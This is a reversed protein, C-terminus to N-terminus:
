RIWRNVFYVPIISILVILLSPFSADYVAGDTEMLMFAKVALTQFNFSQFMMTLPLEKIVDVFVLVCAALITKSLLPGHIKFLTKSFGGGLSFSAWGVNKVVKEFGSGISGYSVSFFRVIYAFILVFISSTLAIGFIQNGFYLLDLMGVGLLAGPIAYGLTAFRSLNSIWRTRLGQQLYYRVLLAIIASLIAASLGIIFTTTIVDPLDSEYLLAWKGSAWTALQILPLIFGFLIPILCIIIALLSQGATLSSKEKERNDKLDSFSARKRVRREIVYILVVIGILMTAINRIPSADMPNWLRVIETTFTKVGYYHVAGYNNIVEMIVLLLGAFIAPWALPLAIRFFIKMSSSGLSKASQIYSSSSLAFSVRTTLYIYPYLSLAMVIALFFINDVEFYTGFLSHSTGFLGLMGKYTYALIYSPISLPLILLFSFQRLLPFKFSATLWATPVAFLLAFVSTLVILLLTNSTYDKGLSFYLDAFVSSRVQFLIALIPLSILILLIVVGWRWILQELRILTM